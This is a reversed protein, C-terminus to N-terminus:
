TIVQTEWGDYECNHQLALDYLELSVYPSPKAIHFVQIGFYTNVNDPEMISRVEYGLSKVKTIFSERRISNDFYLWHDIERETQMTDAHNQLDECVRRSKITEWDRESPYIFDFYINWDPDDQIGSEFKYQQFHNMAIKAHAAWSNENPIYFYFDRCGGSTIRGVYVAGGNKTLVAMLHDEINVLSEFESDTSLGEESPKNLVVRVYAMYPYKNKDVENSIDRDFSIYVPEDDVRRHYFEWNDSM